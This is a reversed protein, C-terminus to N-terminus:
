AKIQFIGLANFDTYFQMQPWIIKLSDTSYPALYDAPIYTKPPSTAAVPATGSDFEVFLGSNIPKGAGDYAEPTQIQRTNGATPATGDSKAYVLQGKKGNVWATSGADKYANLLRWPFSLKKFTKGGDTSYAENIIQFNYAIPIAPLDPILSFTEAPAITDCFVDGATLVIKGVKIDKQNITNRYYYATQYDFFAEVRTFTLYDVTLYRPPPNELADGVSTVLANGFADVDSPIPIRGQRWAVTPAITLPDGGTGSPPFLGSPAVAYTCVVKWSNLQTRRLTRNRVKLVLSDPHSENYLAIAPDGAQPPANFAELRNTTGDVFWERNASPGDASETLTEAAWDYKATAPM